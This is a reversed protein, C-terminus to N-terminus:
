KKEKKRAWRKVLVGAVVFVLGLGALLVIPIIDGDIIYQKLSLALFGWLTFGVVRLWISFNKWSKNYVIMKNM